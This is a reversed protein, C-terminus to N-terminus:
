WAFLKRSSYCIKYEPNAELILKSLVEKDDPLHYTCIALKPKYKRLIAKAGLLLDREAGEIDAKIFDVRSLGYSSAYEDLSISDVVVKKGSVNMDQVSTSAALNEDCLIMEIQQSKAGLAKEVIKVNDEIGNIVINERLLDSTSKIPEFAHVTGGRKCAFATFFGYNAGADIVIDGRQVRVEGKEYTGESCEGFIEMDSSFYPIILDSTQYMTELGCHRVFKILGLDYGNEIKLYRDYIKKWNVHTGISFSIMNLGWIIIGVKRVNSKRGTVIAVFCKCVVGGPLRERITRALLRVQRM